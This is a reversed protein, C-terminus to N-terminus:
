EISQALRRLMQATIRPATTFRVGGDSTARLLGVSPSSLVRLLEHIEDSTADPLDSRDILAGFFDRATMPGMRPGRVKLLEVLASTLDLRRRAEEAIEAVAATPNNTDRSTFILRYDDLTLPTQAHLRLLEALDEIKLLVTQHSAARGSLRGGGFDPALVVAYDAQHLARHEDITDWDIQNSVTGRGTAKCDVIVRYSAGLGLEAELLVDTRGSKGLWQSHFGLRHFAEATEIEFQEHQNGDNGTQMLRLILQEVDSTMPEPLAEAVHTPHGGDHVVVTPTTTPFPPQLALQDLMRKGADSTQVREGAIDALMGASQLWGRRRQIQATTSWGCGYRDNAAGLLEAITRPQIAEQLMEGIYRVRSHLLAILYEVKGTSLWDTTVGSLEILDGREILVGIRLLFGVGLRANTESSGFETRMWSELGVRNPPRATVSEVLSRLSKIYGDYGGPMPYTDKGRQPWAFVPPLEPARDLRQDPIPGLLQELEAWQSPSMPFVTGMPARVIPHEAWSPLAAVDAKPVFPSRAVKIPLLTEAEGRLPLLEFPAENDFPAMEGPLGEVRGVGVFGAATGSRWVAVGDGVSIAGTYQPARWRFETLEQLARDIDFITPNAQLVWYNTM